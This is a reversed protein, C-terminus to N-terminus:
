LVEIRLGLRELEGQHDKSSVVAISPNSATLYREAVAQLQELSVNLVQQRFRARQARDRGFM